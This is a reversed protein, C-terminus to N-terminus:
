ARLRFTPTYGAPSNLDDYLQTEPMRNWSHGLLLSLGSPAAQFLHVLSTDRGGSRIAGILSEVFGRAAPADALARGGIGTDPALVILRGVAPLSARCFAEVDDAPDVSLAIAIALEQADGLERVTRVVGVPTSDGDSTWEEGPAQRRGVEFGAVRPMEAGAVTAVSLRYSGTVLVRDYGQARITAVAARLDHRLRAEWDAPDRLQRRQRPEDGDFLEVWDLAVSATDPWPAHDLCQILLAARPPEAPLGMTSILGEVASRDLSTRGEEILGRLAGVATLVAAVDSKLGLMAMNEQCREQLVRLSQEGARIHLSGLLGELEQADISLHEAWAKLAQGTETDDGPALARPVLREDIGGVYRMLADGPSTSRNTYLIMKPPSAPGGLTVYSKYFRQLSSAGGNRTPRTFWEWTLPERQDVVFKIQHYTPQGKRHHVVVDDVNGAGRVEFEVREVDEGRVLCRMAMLWTFVHQYDDGALRVGSPTPLDV